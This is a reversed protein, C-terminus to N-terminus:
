LSLIENKGSFILNFKSVLEAQEERRFGTFCIVAGRMSLSYTPRPRDPPPLSEHKQALEKLATPGLIRFGDFM